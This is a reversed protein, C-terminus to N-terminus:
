GVSVLGLSTFQPSVTIGKIVPYWLWAALSPSCLSASGFSHQWLMDGSGILVKSEPSAVVATRAPLDTFLHLVESLVVSVLLSQQSFFFPMWFLLTSHQSEEALCVEPQNCNKVGTRARFSLLYLFPHPTYTHTHTISLFNIGNPLYLILCPVSSM